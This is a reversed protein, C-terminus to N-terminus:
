LDKLGMAMELALERVKQYIEYRTTLSESVRKRPEILRSVKTMSNTAEEFTKYLGAGVAAVMAVGRAAVEDTDPTEIPRGLADAFLQLWVESQLVGGSLRVPASQNVIPLRQILTRHEFAVGEYVSALIESSTTNGTLGFHGGTRFPHRPTGYLHPLFVTKGSLTPEAELYVADCYDYIKSGELREPIKASTKVFWEFNSMSNPTSEVILQWDDLHTPISQFVSRDRVHSASLIQNIGWTGGVVSVQSSDFIGSGIMVALNDTVGAVVPIGEPLGTKESAARSLAGVLEAPHSIAEGPLLESVESLGVEQFLAHAPAAAAPDFLGGSGLDTRENWLEGTLFSRLMDKSSLIRRASKLADPDNRKVWEVIPLPQGSWFPQYTLNWAKDQHGAKRWEDVIKAARTDISAFGTTTPRGSGDVLFLGNGFGTVGIAAISAPNVGDIEIVERIASSASEWMVDPDREAYGPADARVVSKKSSSALLKGTHDFVAAKIVSGGIDIGLLQAM